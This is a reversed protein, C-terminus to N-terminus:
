IKRARLALFLPIEARAKDMAAKKPGVQDTKHSTWEDLRDVFLGANGLTNIYAQLPRHFHTTTSSGLGRAADGPHTVISIESSGLYQSIVRQQEQKKDHWTWDSHRPIRFCPHMMVVVLTGKPKLLSWVAHWVPSLPTMNQISLVITAADFSSARLGDSGKGIGEILKTADAVRYEIAFNDTINRRKAATVLEAAADIGVVQCGEKALARCLVGQGCAIDLIRPKGTTIKDLNLLRLVGPLIVERHYESGDHGVHKDYWMAVDGWHTEAPQTQGPAQAKSPRPAPPRRNTVSVETQPYAAEFREGQQEPRSRTPKRPTTPSSDRGKVFARPTSPRTKHRPEIAARAGDKTGV